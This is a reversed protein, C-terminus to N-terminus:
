KGMGRLNRLCQEVSELPPRPYVEQEVIYWETKGTGECIRFVEQWPVDGEGVLPEEKTSSHEKLHVTFARDAWKELTAIADAGGGMANGLDLQMVVEADTNSAIVDWATEGEVRKFERAHNHYGTQMGHAKVKEGIENLTHGFNVLAARTGMHEAGVSAIILYKSGLAKNFEVTQGLEDGQLQPLGLHSGAVELGLDDLMERLEDASRGYYGAFEVGDYGMEAVAKLTGALDRECDERVSWLQLAIPIRAM